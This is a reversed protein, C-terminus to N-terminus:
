IEIHVDKVAHVINEWDYPFQYNELCRVMAAFVHWNTWDEFLFSNGEEEVPKFPSFGLRVFDRHLLPVLGKEAVLQLDQATIQPNLTLFIDKGNLNEYTLFDSQTIMSVDLALIEIGQVLDNLNINSPLNRTDILVQAM